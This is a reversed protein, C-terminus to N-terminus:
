NRGFGFALVLVVSTVVAAGLASAGGIISLLVPKPIGASASGNARNAKPKAFAQQFLGPVESARRWLGNEGSRLQTGPTVGGERVLRVLRGKTYPGDIEEGDLIYWQGVM